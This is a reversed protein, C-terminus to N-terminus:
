ILSGVQAHVREQVDWQSGEKDYLAIIEKAWKVKDVVRQGPPQSTSWLELNALRNDARDGNLHHVNEEPLLSRGLHKEMIYRHEMKEKGNVRLYRYGKSDTHGFGRTPNTHGHRLFRAYHKSCFGKARHFGECFEVSCTTESSIIQAQRLRIDVLTENKIFHKYHTNCYGRCFDKRGCGIFICIKM